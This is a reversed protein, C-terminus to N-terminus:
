QDRHEKVWRTITSKNILGAFMRKIVSMQIGRDVMELVRKRTGDKHPTMNEQGKEQEFGEWLTSLHRISRSSLEQGFLLSRFM